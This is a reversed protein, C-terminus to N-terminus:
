AAAGLASLRAEVEARDAANPALRLYTQLDAAAEGLRELEELAVSRNLYPDPQEPALAVASDLDALALALNGRQYHLVARSTLVDWQQNEIDLARSYDAFAPDIQELADYAQGRGVLALLNRPDLDLARSYAEIAQQFQGLKRWCQGLNTWVEPYPPSLEIAKLFDNKAATFDGQRLYLAARENYYESYGPDMAMAKSYYEIGLEVEGMAVYVQGINYMLVSRHLRHKDGALHEELQEFGKRCLEIAEAFRGQFHRVLALGNRNFVVYFYYDEVAMEARAADLDALGLELYEEGRDLDRPKFYRVYLMSLLYYLQARRPKEINERELMRSEQTLRFAEEARQLGVNSMFMKVFIAWRLDDEDAMFHDLQRWVENGYTLADEYFGLSNYTDLGWCQWRFIKRPHEAQQYLHLLEAVHIEILDKDSGVLAELEAAQRLLADRDVLPAPIETLEISRLVPSAFTAAAAAGQGPDVALVFQLNMAEGRRHMWESFFRRGIHSVRDFHDCIVLWRGTPAVAAKYTDLLDILGHVVRYARDAPYNRVKEEAPALDTLTQNRVGLENKRAPLVYALEAAHRRVLHPHRTKLDDFLGGLFPRLGAWPGGVGFDVDLVFVGALAGSSSTALEELWQRRALGGAATEVIVVRGDERLAAPNWSAVDNLKKEM